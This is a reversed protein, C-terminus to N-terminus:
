VLVQILFLLIFKLDVSDAKFQLLDVLKHFEFALLNGWDM